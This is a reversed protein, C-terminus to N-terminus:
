WRWTDVVSDPEEEEPGFMSDMVSDKKYQKQYEKDFCQECQAEGFMDRGKTKFKQCYDCVKYTKARRGNMSFFDMRERPTHTDNQSFRKFHPVIRFSDLPLM